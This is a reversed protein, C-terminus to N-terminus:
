DSLVELTYEGGKIDNQDVVVYYTGPDFFWDLSFRSTGQKEMSTCVLETTAGCGTRVSLVPAFDEEATVVFSINGPYTVNVQFMNENGPGGCFGDVRGQRGGLSNSWTFYGGPKQEIQTTHLPCATLEPQAYFFRMTYLGNTDRPSDITVSYEHGAEALFHLYPADGVPAACVRPLNDDDSYCGDRTVRLTPTFETSADVFVLVDTDATPVLLYTDEAGGDNDGDGCWGDARSPGRLRGRVELNRIPVVIPNDCGGERPDVSPMMGTEAGTEDENPGSRAGCALLLGTALLVAARPAQSHVTM